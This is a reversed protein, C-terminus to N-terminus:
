FAGSLYSKQSLDLLEAEALAILPVGQQRCAAGVLRLGTVIDSPAGQEGHHQQRAFESAAAADLKETSEFGSRLHIHPTIAEYPLDLAAALLFLWYCVQRGELIVDETPTNHTHVGSLVGALEALEEGIRQRLWALDPHRLRRSTGSVAELDHDRLYCYARYICQLVQALEDTEQLGPHASTQESSSGANYVPAPDFLRPASVEWAGLSNLRRYYCSRYGDHCAAEGRQNVELLLSNGECNIHLAVVEQVHGSTEGKQWLRRRSRSWFHALGTEQTRQLAEANMYALLLVDRTQYDQAVVPVLGDRDFRIESLM